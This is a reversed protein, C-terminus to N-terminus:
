WTSLHYRGKVCLYPPVVFGDGSAAYISTVWERTGPQLHKRKGRRDSGTVVLFAQIIGMMFGSEDFNYLDGNNIGYHARMNAVLRFWPEIVAPDEQLARQIDYPRNFRTQLEQRRAVLRSAWNVGVPQADRESLLLNAMDEM